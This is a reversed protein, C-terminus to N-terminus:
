FSKERARRLNKKEANAAEVVTVIQGYLPSIERKEETTTSEREV